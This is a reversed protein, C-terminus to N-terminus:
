QSEKVEAILMKIKLQASQKHDELQNRIETFFEHLKNSEKEFAVQQALVEQVEQQMKIIEILGAKISVTPSRMDHIVMNMFTKIKQNERQIQEFRSNNFNMLDGLMGTSSDRCFSERSISPNNNNLSDCLQFMETQCKKPLALYSSNERMSGATPPMKKASVYQQPTLAQPPQGDCLAKVTVQNSIFKRLSKKSHGKLM